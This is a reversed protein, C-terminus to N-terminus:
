FRMLMGVPVINRFRGLEKETLATIVEVKWAHIFFLIVELYM